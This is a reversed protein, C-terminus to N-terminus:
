PVTNCGHLYPPTSDWATCVYKTDKYTSGGGCNALYYKGDAGKEPDKDCFDSVQRDFEEGSPNVDGDLPGEQVPVPDTDEVEAPEVEGEPEFQDAVGNGNKDSCGHLMRGAKSKTLRGRSWDNPCDDTKAGYDWYGDRDPDHKEIWEERLAMWIPDEKEVWDGNELTYALRYIRGDQRELEQWASQRRFGPEWDGIRTADPNGLDNNIRYELAHLERTTRSALMLGGGGVTLGLFGISVCIIVLANGKLWAIAQDKNM